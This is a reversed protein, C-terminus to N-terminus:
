LHEENEVAGYCRLSFSDVESSTSHSGSMGHGGLHLWRKVSAGVDTHFLVDDRDCVTLAFDSGRMDSIHLTDSYSVYDRVFHSVPVQPPDCLEPGCSCAPKSVSKNYYSPLVSTTPLSFQRSSFSSSFSLLLFSGYAVISKISINHM